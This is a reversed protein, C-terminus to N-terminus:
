GGAVVEEHDMVELVPWGREAEIRAADEHEGESRKYEAFRVREALAWRRQALHLLGLDHRCGEWERSLMALERGEEPSRVRRVVRGRQGMRFAVRAAAVADFAADHAGELEAGYVVCMGGLTRSSVLGREVGQETTVGYPYSRRYRDLWKDIVHPDVVQKGIVLPDLEHRRAERDMVTLDYRANFVVLPLGARLPAELAKLLSRVVDRAPRGDRRAIETTIGHVAAAEAPIEVGPDALMTLTATKAGGGCLAIAASVIRAEEPLPSTTELDFAAM